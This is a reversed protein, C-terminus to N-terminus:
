RRKRQFLSTMLDLEELARPQKASAGGRKGDVTVFDIISLVYEQRAARLENAEDLTETHRITQMQLFAKFNEDDSLANTAAQARGRKRSRKM